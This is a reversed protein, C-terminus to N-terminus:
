SRRHASEITWRSDAPTNDVGSSDAGRKVMGSVFIWCGRLSVAAKVERPRFDHARSHHWEGVPGAAQLMGTITLGEGAGSFGVMLIHQLPSAFASKVTARAPVAARRVPHSPSARRSGWIGSPAPM